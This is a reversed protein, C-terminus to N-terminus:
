GAYNLAFDLLPFSTIWHRTIYTGHRDARTSMAPPPAAEETQASEMIAHNPSDLPGNM